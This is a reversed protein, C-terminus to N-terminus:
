KRLEPIRRRVPDRTDVRCEETHYDDQTEKSRFPGERLSHQNFSFRSFFILFTAGTDAATIWKSLVNLKARRSRLAAETAQCEYLSDDSLEANSIELNYQGIDLASLVRYRPWAAPLCVGSKCHFCISLYDPSLECRSEHMQQLKQKLEATLPIPNIQLDSFGMSSPFHVEPIYNLFVTGGLFCSM